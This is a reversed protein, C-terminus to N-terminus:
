VAVVSYVLDPAGPRRQSSEANRFIRGCWAVVIEVPLSDGAASPLERRITANGLIYDRGSMLFDFLLRLREM